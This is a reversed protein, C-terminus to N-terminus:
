AAASKLAPPNVLWAPLAAPAQGTCATQACAALSGFHVQRGTLGPAYHAYKGSNTMIVRAAVPVVPEDLRLPLAIVASLVFGAVVRYTSIAIDDILDNETLWFWFKGLVAGPSPMFTPDLGGWAALAWWGLLPAILGTLALVWYARRSISARVTWLSSWPRRPPTAPPPQVAASPAVGSASPTDALHAATVATVAPHLSSM